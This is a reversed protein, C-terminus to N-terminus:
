QSFQGMASFNREIQDFLLMSLYTNLVETPNSTDKPITGLLCKEGFKETIKLDFHCVKGGYNHGVTLASEIQSRDLFFFLKKWM